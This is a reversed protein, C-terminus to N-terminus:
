VDSFIFTIGRGTVLFLFNFFCDTLNFKRRDCFFGFLVLRVFNETLSSLANIQTKSSYLKM